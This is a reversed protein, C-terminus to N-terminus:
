SLVKVPRSSGSILDNGVKGRLKRSMLGGQLASQCRVPANIHTIEQPWVKLRNHKRPGHHFTQPLLVSEVALIGM